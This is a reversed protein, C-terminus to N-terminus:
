QDTTEAKDLRHFEGKRKLMETLEERYKPLFECRCFKDCQKVVNGELRVTEEISYVAESDKQYTVHIHPKKHKEGKEDRLEIKIGNSNWVVPSAIIRKGKNKGATKGDIREIEKLIDEHLKELM